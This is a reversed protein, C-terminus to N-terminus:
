EIGLYNQMKQVSEEVTEKDTDLIIDPNEPPEYPAIPDIYIFNDIEGKLLRTYLSKVDRSIVTKLNSKIYM